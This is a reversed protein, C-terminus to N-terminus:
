EGCTALKEIINDGLLTSSLVKCEGVHKCPTGMSDGHVGHPSWPSKLSVRHPTETFEM